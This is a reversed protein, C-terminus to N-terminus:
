IRSDQCPLTSVLLDRLILPERTSGPCSPPEAPVGADPKLGRGPTLSPGLGPCPRAPYVLKPPEYNPWVPVHSSPSRGWQPMMSAPAAPRKSRGQSGPACGAHPFSCVSPLFLELSNQNYNYSNLHM